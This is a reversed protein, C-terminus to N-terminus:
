GMRVGRSPPQHRSLAEAISAALARDGEDRSTAILALAERWLVAAESSHGGQDLTAALNHLAVAREGATASRAVEIRHAQAFAILAAAWDREQVFWTGRTSLLAAMDASGSLSHTTLWGMAEGLKAHAAQAGSLRRLMSAERRMARAAYVAEERGMNRLLAASVAVLAVARSRQRFAWGRRAADLLLTAIERDARVWPQTAADNPAAAAAALWESGDKAKLMGAVVAHMSALSRAHVLLGQTEEGATAARLTFRANEFLCGQAAGIPSEQWVGTLRTPDTQPDFRVQVRWGALAALPRGEAALARPQDALTAAQLDGWALWQPPAPESGSGVRDGGTGSSWRVLHMRLPGAAAADPICAPGSESVVVLEGVWATPTSAHAPDSSWLAAALSLWALTNKIM